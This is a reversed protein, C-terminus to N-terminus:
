LACTACTGFIEVTHSVDAFVNDAAVKATWREVTPGAVEVTRGCGRCVLHHRHNESCRRYLYEGGAPLMGEIEAADALAQIARYAPTLGVAAGRKRLM